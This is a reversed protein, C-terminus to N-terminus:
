RPVDRPPRLPGGTAPRPGRRMRAAPARMPRSAYNSAFPNAPVQSPTGFLSFEAYAGSSVLLMPLLISLIPLIPHRPGASEIHRMTSRM